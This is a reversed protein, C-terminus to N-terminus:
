CGNLIFNVNGDFEIFRRVLSIDVNKSIIKEVDKISDFLSKQIFPYVSMADSDILLRILMSLAYGTSSGPFDYPLTPITYLKMLVDMGQLKIFEKCHATNQFLGELFQLSLNLL